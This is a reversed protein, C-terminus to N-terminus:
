AKARSTEDKVRVRNAARAERTVGQPGSAAAAPTRSRDVECRWDGSASSALDQRPGLTSCGRRRAVHGGAYHLPDAVDPQRSVNIVTCAGLEYCTFEAILRFFLPMERM